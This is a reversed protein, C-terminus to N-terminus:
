FLQVYFRIFYKYYIRVINKKGFNPSENFQTSNGKVATHSYTNLLLIFNFNTRLRQRGLGTENMKLTGVSNCM